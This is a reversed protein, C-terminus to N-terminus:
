PTSRDPDIADPPPGDAQSTTRRLVARVILRKSNGWRPWCTTITMLPQAKTYGPPIRSVEALDTPPVVRVSTVEYSFWATRTEVVVFDGPKMADLDAFMGNERHGAVAFNGTQGPKQSQPYHGPAGALAQDSVGEAIIWSLHLRPITLRGIPGGPAPRGAVVASVLDPQRWQRTLATQGADLVARDHRMRAAVGGLEIGAVVLLVVALAAVARLPWRRRRVARSAYITM